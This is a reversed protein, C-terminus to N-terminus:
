VANIKMKEHIIRDISEQQSEKETKQNFRSNTDITEEITKYRPKEQIDKTKQSENKKQFTINMNKQQKNLLSLTEFLFTQEEKTPNWSIANGDQYINQAHPNLHISINLNDMNNKTLEIKCYIKDTSQM